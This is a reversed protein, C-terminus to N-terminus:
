SQAGRGPPSIPRAPGACPAKAEGRPAWGRGPLSARVVGSHRGGAGGGVYPATTPCGCTGPAKHSQYHKTGFQPGYPCREPSGAGPVKRQDGAGERKTGASVLLDFRPLCGWGQRRPASFPSPVLHPPTPMARTGKGQKCCYARGGGGVRVGPNHNPNFGLKCTSVGPPAPLPCPCRPAPAPHRAPM